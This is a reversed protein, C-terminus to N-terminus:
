LHMQSRFLQAYEAKANIMQGHTGSEV